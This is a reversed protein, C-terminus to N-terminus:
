QPVKFGGSVLRNFVSAPDYKRQVARMKEVNDAGYHAIVDQSYSADNMFIYEIYKNANKSAQEVKARMSATANHAIEDGSPDNWGVDLVFWTQNIPKLGLANGGRAQGALVANTTIPQLGLALSGSTLSAIKKLEPATLTINAIEAYLDSDPEFSTAHWDWRPIPPVRQGGIMETLTQIKTTDDITPFQYFPEFASPNAEPKLYVLNLVVGVSSNTTFAQLMFNAYLDKDPNTQYKYAAEMLAPLYDLSYEKIGGWVM